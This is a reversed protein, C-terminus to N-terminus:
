PVQYGGFRVEPRYRGPDEDLILVVSRSSGEPLWDVTTASTDVLSEDEDLLDVSVGLTQVSEDGHNRVLLPLYYRGGAERVAGLEGSFETPAPTRTGEWVLYGAAALLLLGSLWTVAIQVKSERSLPGGNRRERGEVVNDRGQRDDPEVTEM